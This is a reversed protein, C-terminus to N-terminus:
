GALINFPDLSNQKVYGFVMVAQQTFVPMAMYQTTGPSIAPMSREMPYPCLIRHAEPVGQAIVSELCTQYLSWGRLNADRTKIRPVKCANSIQSYWHGSCLLTSPMEPVVSKWPKEPFFHCPFSCFQHDGQPPAPIRWVYGNHTLGMPCSLVVCNSM